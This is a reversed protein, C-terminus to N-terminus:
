RDVLRSLHRRGFPCRDPTVHGCGRHPGGGGLCTHAIEYTVTGLAEPLKTHTVKFICNDFRCIHLGVGLFSLGDGKGGCVPWILNSLRFVPLCFFPELKQLAKSELRDRFDTLIVKVQLTSSARVYGPGHEQSGKESRSPGAPRGAQEPLPPLSPSSHPTGM